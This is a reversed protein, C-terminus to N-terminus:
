ALAQFYSKFQWCFCCRSLASKLLSDTKKDGSLSYGNDRTYQTPNVSDAAFIMSQYNETALAKSANPNFM